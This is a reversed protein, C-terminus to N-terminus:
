VTRRDSMVRVIGGVGVVETLKEHWSLLVSMVQGGGGEGFNRAHIQSFGGSQSGTVQPSMAKNSSGGTTSSGAMGKYIYKMLTDGLAPGGPQKLMEGLIRSVDSQRIGQLVELVTTLHVQKAADDGALPATELASQLAGLSDGARLLQRVQQGIQAAEASTSPAPLNGPILTTLPFNVASDPDYADVNLTRWNINAM